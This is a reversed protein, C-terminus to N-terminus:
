AHHEETVELTPPTPKEAVRLRASRCSPNHAREAAAPRQPHPTLIAIHQAQQFNRFTHKVIRDELSHFSICLARGGPALLTLAQPLAKRLRDLENNVAIRLAQYSRTAPHLSRRRYSPPRARQIVRNLAQTDQIPHRQREAVIHRAISAAQPEEGYEKLMRTLESLSARQVIQAASLSQRSDLRMDLPAPIRFSFGRSSNRLHVASIGLDFLVAQPPNGRYNTLFEDFWATEFQVRQAFCKLREKARLIMEDDRDICIMQLHPYAALLAASHGGEGVTADICLSSSQVAPSLWAVVEPTLVATHLLSLEAM